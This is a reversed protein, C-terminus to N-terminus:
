KRIIAPASDVTKEQPENIFNFGEIVVGLALGIGMGTAFDKLGAGVAAGVCLGMTLGSGYHVIPEAHEHINEQM